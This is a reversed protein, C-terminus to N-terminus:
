GIELAIKGIMGGAALRAQAQGADALAFTQAVKVKLKGAGMLEMGQHVIGGQQAIRETIGLWMPTLMMVNHITLNMNYADTAETDSPTGMLTAVRGYPAM